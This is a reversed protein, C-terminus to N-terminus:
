LALFPYAEGLGLQFWLKTLRESELLKDRLASWNSVELYPCNQYLYDTIVFNLIANGVFQLRENNTDPESVQQAYSRNILALHLTERNKFQVGIKAEVPEPKWDM